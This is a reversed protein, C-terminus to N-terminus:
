RLQLDPGPERTASRPLVTVPVGPGVVEFRPGTIWAKGSGAMNFGTTISGAELPVDAVIEVLVWNTDGAFGPDRSFGAVLVSASTRNLGEDIRMSLNAGPLFAGPSEYPIVDETKIMASWRVRKGRFEDAPFMQNIVVAGGEAPACAIALNSVGSAELEFDVGTTCEELAPSFGHTQWRGSAPNITDDSAQAVVAALTAAALIKYNM